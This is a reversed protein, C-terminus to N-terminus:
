SQQCQAPPRATPFTMDHVLGLGRSSLQGWTIGKGQGVGVGMGAGATIELKTAMNGNAQDLLGSGEM